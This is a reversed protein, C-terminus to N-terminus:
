QRSTHHQFLRVETHDLDDRIAIKSNSVVIPMATHSGTGSTSNPTYLETFVGKRSQLPRSLLGMFGKRPSKAIDNTGSAPPSPSPTQFINTDIPVPLDLPRVRSSAKREFQATPFDEVAPVTASPELCGSDSDSSSEHEVSIIPRSKHVNEGEHSTEDEDEPIEEVECEGEDQDTSRKPVSPVMESHLGDLSKALRLLSDRMVHINEIYLFHLQTTDISPDDVREFGGGKVMNAVANVPPRCDTIILNSERNHNSKSIAILLNKDQDSQRMGLGVQM